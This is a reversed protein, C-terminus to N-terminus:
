QQLDRPLRWRLVQFLNSHDDTWVYRAQATPSSLQWYRTDGGKGARIVLSRYNSPELTILREWPTKTGAPWRTKDLDERKRAVMVWESTFHGTEEISTNQRGESGPASDKGTMYALGLSDAVAGVVLPLNVYRNSTHVCLIGEPVLKKFYMQISEKTILHVPIADSSFADVVMMHYFNEPGGSDSPSEHFNKYPLDMRLRADGMLVQVEAGRRIADKLYSFYTKRRPTFDDLNEHTFYVNKDDVPLSLRRIHNDIEYYHVHQYPRGYSAMTGTGLGVTAYAPESFLGVLLSSPTPSMGGLLDGGLTSLLYGPMRGDAHYTNAQWNSATDPHWNYLEMVRGAPGLRHYYTTALRSFDKERSGWDESDRSPGIFNMGHNIRGHILQYYQQETAGKGGGVLQASRQVRIIGFYSRDAYESRDYRSQDFAHVIIIGAVALGFRLPRGLMLCALILPVGYALFLTSGSFSMRL